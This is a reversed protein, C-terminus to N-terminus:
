TPPPWRTMQEKFLGVTGNRGGSVEYGLDRIFASLSDAVRIVNSNQRLAETCIHLM